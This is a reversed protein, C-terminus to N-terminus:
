SKVPGLQTSIKEVVRLLRRQQAANIAHGGYRVRYFVRTLRQIAGYAEAPLYGISRTFELPTLHAARTIKQKELTSVLEDYFELQRALRRRDGSPLAALGIRKARRRLRLREYVFLGIAAAIVFIMLGMLFTLLGSSVMFFNQLNLWDKLKQTWMSTSIATNTLGTDVNQIINTRSESDYNVVNNGWSYELYEFVSRVRNWLGTNRSAAAENSTTPDFTQWGNLTMVETWAHAHSQKVTYYDGLTNYEDAKFGVVVRAKMGVSQCMLAMAGAFYECHGRRFDYLFQVLPDADEARRADTLDLTYQFNNKLYQEFNRALKEDVATIRSGNEIRQRALNGNVDTGAVDDRTAYTRVQEPVPYSRPPPIPIGYARALDATNFTTTSTIPQTASLNTSTVVYRLEGTLPEAAQLVEDTRGRMLRMDRESRFTVVGPLAFLTSTGTPLLRIDQRYREGPPAQDNLVYDQGAGVSPIIEVQVQTSRIWKWRDIDTPDSVYVDPASGRLYIIQGPGGWPVGDRTIKVYAVTAENQSIRAVDQFSVQDSFGTMAQSPKFAMNGIIGAGTGRPFFLFVLLAMVIAVSSVTATLRRMSRSLFRQDQKLTTVDLRSEDIGIATKAHDTETKLHFLLCCYLSLFLYVLFMIGFALSATSIASAVMLLLSLILLQALDRNGRQEYLKVLQLLVLFEGIALIPPGAIAKVRVVLLAACALTVVNALLRPMPKFRKNLVLWLNLLTAGCALVWIGPLEAAVAFGTFGLLLLVYLTPRFQRIDYM